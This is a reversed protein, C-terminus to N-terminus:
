VLECGTPWHGPLFQLDGPLDIDHLPELLRVSWGLQDIRDLTYRCVAATSWPIDSFLSPHFRNLGLLVYGGDHAPVIVADHTRLAEGALRLIAADLAPCDSGTILVSHHTELACRAVQSMREGLDGDSQESWHIEEPLALQQWTSHSYHPAVCLEVEGLDAALSERVCHQLMSAALSAAGGEGLAPILRTKTFGPIPAKAIVIIRPTMISLARGVQDGERRALLALTAAVDAYHNALNWIAAM